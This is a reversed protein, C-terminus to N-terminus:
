AVQVVEQEKFTDDCTGTETSQSMSNRRSGMKTQQFPIQSEFNM